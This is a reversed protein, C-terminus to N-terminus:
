NSGKQNRRNSRNRHATAKRKLNNVTRLVFFVAVAGLAVFVVWVGTSGNGSQIIEQQPSDIQFYDVDNMAYLDAEAVCMNKYWVQVSSILDGKKIPANFNMGSSPYRYSLDAITVNYPLVALANNGPGLVVDCEGNAVPMQTLVQGDYVVQSIKYNDFCMDLLESTETYGGFVEVYGYDSIKSEAGAIISILEMTESEASVAINRYGETTVGTRGGTVRSDYYYEVDETSMLYNGTLLSREESKNTANVTYKETGFAAAFIENSMAADLIKGMDRVTTRQQDDHLGHVNVFNTGTCGLETAYNNMKEVFAEQSGYLHDALIAAADNASAVMMCYYLDKLTLVEDPQLDITAADYPILSLVSEKVTIVEEMNGEEAVILGTMIKVLSAPFVAADPNWSYMMTQSKREYVIIADSNKILEDKGLIASTADLSYCSVSENVPPQQETASVPIAALLMLLILAFLCIKKM